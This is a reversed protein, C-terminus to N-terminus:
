QLPTNLAPSTYAFGGSMSLVTGITSFSAATTDLGLFDRLFAFRELGTCHAGLIRIVGNRLLQHAEWAVTGETNRDGLPLPFFHIGGVVILPPQNGGLIVQATEITNIIGAHACGTVVVLGTSTNILLAHEEPMVDLSLNGAPDQIYPKGPYTKEDHNRAIKGTLWM